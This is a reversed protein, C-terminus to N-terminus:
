RDDNTRRQDNQKYHEIDSANADVYSYYEEQVQTEVYNNIKRAALQIKSDDQFDKEMFGVDADMKYNIDKINGGQIYMEGSIIFDPYYTIQDSTDLKLYIIVDLSDQWEEDGLSGDVDIHKNLPIHGESKLSIEYDEGLTWGYKKLEIVIKVLVSKIKDNM